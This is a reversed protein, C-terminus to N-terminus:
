GSAMTAMDFMPMFLSIAMSGVVLGMFVLMVPEIVRTLSSLVQANDDEMCAATFLLSNALKGSEEGTVMASAFTKPILWSDKLVPGITNGDTITQTIKTLLEQFDLNSTSDKTLHVADLLGVKSELLQGWIRCIRALIINRTIPGFVPIRISMWSIWQKGLPSRLFWIIGVVTGVIGGLVWPWYAMTVQSIKIMIATTAPLDMDLSEFMESFRPIVFTFLALVVGLCLVLLSIPYAMAGIVRSKIERQQRTLIALRDFALALDGSAEGAAIMNTFVGSFLEPFQTLAVSLPKGEEVEIRIAHLVQKWAPRQAQSEVAELAQVVRAGSRILMTMQQTFFVIDQSKVKSSSNGSSSKSSLDAAAGDVQDIQTVFMGRERLMDAAQTLSDADIVDVLNQGSADIAQYRYAM